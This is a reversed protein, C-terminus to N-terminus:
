IEKMGIHKGKVSGTLLDTQRNGVGAQRHTGTEVGKSKNRGAWQLILNHAMNKAM